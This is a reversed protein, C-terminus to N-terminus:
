RQRDPKGMDPRPCHTAHVLASQAEVLSPYSVSATIKALSARAQAADACANAADLAIVRWISASLLLPHDEALESRARELGHEISARAATVDGRDLERRALAIWALLMRPHPNAANRQLGAALEADIASPCAPTPARACALAVLGDLALRTPMDPRSTMLGRAVLADDRAAGADHEFWAIEARMRLLAGRRSQNEATDPYLAWSRQILARAQALQGSDILRMTEMRLSDGYAADAQGSVQATVDLMHACARAATAVDFLVTDATCLKQANLMNVFRPKGGLRDLDTQAQALLERARRVHGARMLTWGWNSLGTLVDYSDPQRYKLDIRYAHEYAEAAADFQGAGELGYGLNNYGAAAEPAMPGVARIREDLARRELALSAEAHDRDMEVVALNDLVGVLPMGGIGAERLRREVELLAPEGGAYDGSRIALGGRQSLADIALPDSKGLSTSALRDAAAALASAGVADGVSETLNAFMMTLDVREAPGLVTNAKLSDAGTAVLERITPLKGESVGKRVPDFLSEVFDRVSNARRAEQRAVQAQWLAIGLAAMIAALFL